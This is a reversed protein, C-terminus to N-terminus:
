FREPALLGIEISPKERSCIEAVLKGTIPGLSLGMMAHGTAIVLNAHRSSRGLYPLGDPSCPRLGRWVPVGTFKNPALEPFFQGISKVLGQVRRANISEDLGIIEMTGAFRLGDLMPTCTARAETLISCIKPMTPLAPITLSYGKGAQMPLYLGLRKALASSWAGGAIVYEDAEYRKGGAMVGCIRGNDLQWECAESEYAITVGQTKLWNELGAIFQAPSLHCDKPFYVSGAINLKLAPELKATEEPTLVEAPVGLSNAQAAMKQEDAFGHATHCLMLLGKLALGFDHGALAAMEAFGQRSALNLDCLLPASREVHARTASRWFKWAWDWLEYDLRPRIYFPSEPNLMMRLGTAVMGPAALPVFHSPVVMGATGLSCSDHSAPGRELLTVRHGKQV